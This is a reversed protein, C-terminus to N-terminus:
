ADTRGPVTDADKTAIRNLVLDFASVQDGNREIATPRYRHLEINTRRGARATGKRQGFKDLVQRQVVAKDGITSLM